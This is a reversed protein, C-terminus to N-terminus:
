VKELIATIKELSIDRKEDALFEKDYNSLVTKLSEKDMSVAAKKLPSVGRPVWAIFAFKARKSMEDGIEFRVYAYKCEDETFNELLESYDTGSGDAVLEKAEKRVVLWTVEHGDDRVAEQLSSIGDRDIAAM